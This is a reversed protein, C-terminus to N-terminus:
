KRVVVIDASMSNDDSIDYARIETGKKIDSVRGPVYGDPTGPELIYVSANDRVEFMAGGAITAVGNQFTEVGVFAGTTIEVFVKGKKGTDSAKFITQVEGHSLNVEYLEGNLYQPETPIGTLGSKCLWTIEQGATFTKLGKVIDGKVNKTDVTGDIVAYARGSFGVDRPLIMETIEGNELKYFAPTTVNKYKYVTNERYDSTKDAFEMTSKYNKEEGYTYITVSDSISKGGYSTMASNFAGSNSYTMAATNPAAGPEDQDTGQGPTEAPPNAAVIRDLANYTFEAAMWKTADAHMAPINEYLGLEVGKDVYNSPWVGGLSEDSFGAARLVMTVLENGTVNNGPKFTADPYGKTVGRKVAYAVYGEAWGYGTMDKYGSKEAFQTATGSVESAPPNMAKVVIVCAQARTLYSNPHFLGDVDGTIIEREVLVKVAQELDTGAVDPPIVTTEDAAFAAPTGM